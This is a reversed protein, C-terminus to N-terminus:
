RSNANHVPASANPQRTWTNTMAKRTHQGMELPHMDRHKHFRVASGPVCASGETGGTHAPSVAVGLLARFDEKGAWGKIEEIQIEEPRFTRRSSLLRPLKKQSRNLRAQLASTAIM